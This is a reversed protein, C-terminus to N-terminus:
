TSNQSPMRFSLYQKPFAHPSIFRTKWPTKAYTRLSRHAPSQNIIHYSKSLITFTSTRFRQKESDSNHATESPYFNFIFGFNLTFASLTVSNQRDTQWLEFVCCLYPACGPGACWHVLLSNSYLTYYFALAPLCSLLLRYISLSKDFYASFVFGILM